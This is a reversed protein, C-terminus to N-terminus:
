EDAARAYQTRLFDARQANMGACERRLAQERNELLELRCGHPRCWRIGPVQALRGGLLPEVDAPIKRNLTNKYSSLGAAGDRLRAISDFLQPAGRHVVIIPQRIDEAGACAHALFLPAKVPRLVVNQDLYEVGGTAIRYMFPLAAFKHQRRKSFRRSGHDTKSCSIDHRKSGLRAGATSRGHSHEAHVAPEIVHEDDTTDVYERAIDFRHRSLFDVQAAFIAQDDFSVIMKIGQRDFDFAARIEGAAVRFKCFSESM